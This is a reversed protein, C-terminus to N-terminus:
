DFKNAFQEFQKARNIVFLRKACVSNLTPTDLVANCVYM